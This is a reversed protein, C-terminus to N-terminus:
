RPGAMLNCAYGLRMEEEREVGDRGRDKGIVILVGKPCGMRWAWKANEGVYVGM